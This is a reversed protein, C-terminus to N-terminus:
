SNMQTRIMKSHNRLLNSTAQGHLRMKIAGTIINYLHTICNLDDAWFHICNKEHFILQPTSIIQKIKATKQGCAIDEYDFEVDNDFFAFTFKLIKTLEVLIASFLQFHGYANLM